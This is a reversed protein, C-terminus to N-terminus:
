FVGPILRWRVRELYAMYEPDDSLLREEILLQARQAQAQARSAADVRESAESVKDEFSNLESRLEMMSRSSNFSESEKGPGKFPVVNSTAERGSERRQGAGPRAPDPRAGGRRAKEEAARLKAECHRKLLAGRTYIEISDELSVDGAELCQVIEELEALAEEFSLKAIDAPIPADSDSKETAM